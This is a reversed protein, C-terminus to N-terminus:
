KRHSSVKFVNLENRLNVTAQNLRQAMTNSNKVSESSAAACDNLQKMSESIQEAGIAQQKMGETVFELKAPLAHIESIIGELQESINETETISHKVEAAFKEMSMVGTSVSSEMEDVTKIIDLASVATQDSLRRIERAVVAFGKGFEGAKEAEISANLSLLNTQEAVKNITSIVNTINSTKENIVGLKSSISNTAEGLKSMAEQMSRLGSSGADALMSTKESAQGVEQMTTVLQQSTASIERTSSVSENTASRLENITAEQERSSLNIQESSKVLESTARQVQNILSNLNSTMKHMANILQSTEDSSNSKLSNETPMSNIAKDLEGSAILSATNVANRIPVIIKKSYFWGLILPIIILLAGIYFSVRIMASMEDAMSSIQNAAKNGDAEIEDALKVIRAEIHEGLVDLLHRMADFHKSTEVKVTRYEKTLEALFQRLSVAGAAEQAKLQERLDFIKRNIAITKRTLVKWSTYEALFDNYLKEEDGTMVERTQEMRELIQGVNEQNFKDAKDMEALSIASEAQLEAISAQYADRDANLLLVINLNLKNMAPIKDKLIPMFTEGTAFHMGYSFSSLHFYNFLVFALLGLLPLALVSLIKNKISM